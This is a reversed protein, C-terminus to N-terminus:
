REPIPVRYPKRDRYLELRSQFDAKKPGDGVLAIAEAQRKVAADYDGAEAHAAALTDLLAPDQWGTLACARTAAEVARRGDRYAAVPCAAWVMARNNHAAALEADFRLAEAFQALAQDFRGSRFLVEGLNNHAPAYAPDLRLAEAFHARAQDVEGRRVLMGGMTTHAVASRGAGHELAHSWLSESDRWTRCQGRTLVILSFLVGLGVAALGLLVPRVRRASRGIRNFGAAVLVVGGMTALYSYRDAAIQDSFRVLGLNPALIVLYSLWAALQGPRSRRMLILAASLGLTSLISLLYPLDSWTIQRPMPYYSALNFPWVTKAVYFCIGYCVQAVRTALGWDSSGNAFRGGERAKIALGIIILSLFAFPVKERWVKRAERGFWRGPGGGLRRLPEVDLIVLIVPLGVAVAKSLLAAVFLAWSGALWGRRPPGTGPIAQLYALVALLSFLACLLYPQCSAWAVVEVRLPHVTFLATALWAGLLNSRARKPGIDHRARDLLTVVLTFLALAVAAHLLLSTIHYGGPNLGCFSYQMELLLWSLPQYVGLHFTSWAWSLQRWGLGRYHPNDLFNAADDWTDVFGNDLLPQFAIVVLVVLGVALGLV